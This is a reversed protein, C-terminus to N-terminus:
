VRKVREQFGGNTSYLLVDMGSMIVQSSGEGHILRQHIYEFLGAFYYGIRVALDCFFLLPASLALAFLQELLEARAEFVGEIERAFFLQFQLRAEINLVAEANNLKHDSALSGDKQEEWAFAIVPGKLHYFVAMVREREALKLAAGLKLTSGLGLLCGAAECRCADYGRYPVPHLVNLSRLSNGIRFCRGSPVVAVLWLGLEGVSGHAFEEAVLLVVLLHLDDM